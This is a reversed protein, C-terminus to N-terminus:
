EAYDKSILVVLLLELMFDIPSRMMALATVVDSSGYLTAKANEQFLMMEDNFMKKVQAASPATGTIRLLALSGSWAYDEIVGGSYNSITGYGNGQLDVTWAKNGDSVWEGNVYVVGM